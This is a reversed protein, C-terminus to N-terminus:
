HRPPGRLWLSATTPQITRDVVELLEATLTGIGAISWALRAAVRESM